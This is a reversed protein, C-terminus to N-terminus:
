MSEIHGVDGCYWCYPRRGEVIILINCGQCTLINPAGTFCKSTRTVYLCVKGTGIGAKSKAMAVKCVQRYQAFFGGFHDEKIDLLKTTFIRGSVDKPEKSTPLLNDCISNSSRALIKPAINLSKRAETMVKRRAKVDTTLISITRLSLSFPLFFENWSICNKYVKQVEYYGPVNKPRVAASASSSVPPYKELQPPPADM